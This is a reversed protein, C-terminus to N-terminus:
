IFLYVNPNVERRKCLSCIEHLCLPMLTANEASSRRFLTKFRLKQTMFVNLKELVITCKTIVINYKADHKVAKNMYRSMSPLLTILRV